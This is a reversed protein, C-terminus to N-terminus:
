VPVAQSSGTLLRSAPNLRALVALPAHTTGFVPAPSAAGATTPALKGSQSGLMHGFAFSSAAAVAISVAAAAVNLRLLRPRRRVAAIVPLSPQVLPEARLLGAAAEIRREYTQCEPCGHLHADLQAEELESLEGDLRASASERAKACDRAPFPTIM